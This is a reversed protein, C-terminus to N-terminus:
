AVTSFWVKAHGALWEPAICCLLTLAQGSGYPEGTAPEHTVTVLEHVCSGGVHVAVDIDLPDDQGCFKLPLM